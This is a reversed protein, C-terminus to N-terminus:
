KEKQRELSDYEGSKNMWEVIMQKAILVLKSVATMAITCVELRGAGYLKYELM